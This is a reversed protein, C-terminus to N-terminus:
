APRRNPPLAGLSKGFVELEKQILQMRQMDRETPEEGPDMASTISTFLHMAGGFFAARMDGLQAMGADPPVCMLRFGQWGAEIIKGADTLEAAIRDIDAQTM